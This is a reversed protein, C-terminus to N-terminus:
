LRVDLCEFLPGASCQDNYLSVNKHWTKETASHACEDELEELNVCFMVARPSSLM